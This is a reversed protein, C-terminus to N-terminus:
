GAHVGGNTFPDPLGKDACWNRLRIFNNERTQEYGDRHAAALTSWYRLMDPNDRTYDKVDAIDAPTWQYYNALFAFDKLFQKSVKM